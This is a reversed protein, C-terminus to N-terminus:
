LKTAQLHEGSPRLLIWPNWGFWALGFGFRGLTGTVQCFMQSLCFECNGAHDKVWAELLVKRRGGKKEGTAQLVAPKTVYGCAERGVAETWLTVQKPEDPSDPPEGDMADQALPIAFGHPRQRACPRALVCASPAAAWAVSLADVNIGSSAGHPQPDFGQVRTLMLIPPLHANMQGLIPDAYTIVWPRFSWPDDHTERWYGIWLLCTSAWAMGVM